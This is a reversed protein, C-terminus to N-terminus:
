KKRTEALVILNWIAIYINGEESFYDEDIHGKVCAAIRPIKNIIEQDDCEFRNKNL